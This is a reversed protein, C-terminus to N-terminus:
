ILDKTAPEVVKLIGIEPTYEGGSSTKVTVDYVYSKYQELNKTDDPILFFVVMGIGDGSGDDEIRGDAEPTVTVHKKLKANLDNDEIDEKVTFWAESLIEGSPINKVARAVSFTRGAVINIAYNLNSM